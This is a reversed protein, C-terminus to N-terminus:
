IIMKIIDTTEEVEAEAEMVVTEIAESNEGIETEAEVIKTLYSKATLKM